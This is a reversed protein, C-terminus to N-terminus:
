VFLLIVAAIVVIVGVVRNFGLALDSPEANKYRWGYELYWVTYPSVINFVGVVALIIVGVFKGSNTEKPAKELLVNCLTDGDVYRKEDYDDSWGGHGSHGSQSFWYTSGDPYVINVNYSSSNGSFDYKYTHTGDSITQNDRDVEYSIDNKVVTYVIETSCACLLLM